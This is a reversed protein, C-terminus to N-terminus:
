HFDGECVQNLRKKVIYSTHTEMIINVFIEPNNQQQYDVHQIYTASTHESSLHTAILIEWSEICPCCNEEMHIMESINKNTRQFLVQKMFVIRGYLHFTMINITQNMMNKGDNKNWM